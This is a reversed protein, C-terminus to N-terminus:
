NTIITTEGEPTPTEPIEPTGETTETTVEECACTESNWEKGKACGGEPESCAKEVGSEDYADWASKKFASKFPFASGTYKMKFPVM